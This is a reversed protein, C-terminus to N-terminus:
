TLAALRVNPIAAVPLYLDFDAGHRSLVVAVLSPAIARALLNPRTIRGVMAAYREPGFLALSVTVKAVLSVGNGAGYLVVAVAAARLGSWPLVLGSATLVAVM